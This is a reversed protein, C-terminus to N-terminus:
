EMVEIMMNQDRLQAGLSSYGGFFYPSRLDQKHLMTYVQSLQYTQWQEAWIRYKEAEAQWQQAIRFFKYTNYTISFM